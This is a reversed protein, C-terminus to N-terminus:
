RLSGSTSAPRCISRTEARRIKSKPRSEIVRLFQLTQCLGGTFFTQATPAVHTFLAAFPDMTVIQLITPMLRSEGTVGRLHLTCARVISVLLSIRGADSRDVGGM